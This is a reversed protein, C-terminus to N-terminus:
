APPEDNPPGKKKFEELRRREWEDNSDAQNRLDVATLGADAGARQIEEADIRSNNRRVIFQWLGFVSGALGVLSLGATIPNSMIASLMPAFGQILGFVKELDM